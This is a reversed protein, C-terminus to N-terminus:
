MNIIYKEQQKQKLIKKLLEFKNNFDDKLDAIVNKMQCNNQHRIKNFNTGFLKLCYMCMFEKSKINPETKTSQEITTNTNTIVNTNKRQQMKDSTEM